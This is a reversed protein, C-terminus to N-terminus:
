PGTQPVQVKERLAIQVKATQEVSDFSLIIGPIAVRMDCLAQYLMEKWQATQAANRMDPTLNTSAAANSSM